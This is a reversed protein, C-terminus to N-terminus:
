SLFKCDEALKKKIVRKEVHEFNRRKLVILHCNESCHAQYIANPENENEDLDMFMSGFIAGRNLSGIQHLAKKEKIQALQEKM